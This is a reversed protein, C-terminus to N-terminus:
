PSKKEAFLPSLIALLRQAAGARAEVWAKASKQLANRRDSNNLLADIEAALNEANKVRVGAQAQQMQAYIDSFNHTHPGTAIACSLRAPELPNQGGHRVLSGGMFVIECLRYFLGLEGLTDAVYFQTDAAIPEGKSRLAVKGTKGLLAAVEGGRGPHRPVIVTLLKRTAALLMHAKAILEEEGPHTSAALWLPRGAMHQQLRLLEAEDCPLLAADFKLNGECHVDHAGLSQLRQADDESQAFMVDFAGLIEAAFAPCKRWSNFSRQSMRGNIVGMFTESRHAALILNPWFESEVWFAIDPRWHRIFRNTAQPTDIPVFQHIVGAPLRTQLLQASTVTGTTVLM